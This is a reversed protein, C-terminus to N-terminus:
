ARGPRPPTWPGTPSRATTCRSAAVSDLPMDTTLSMVVSMVMEPGATGIAISNVGHRLEMASTPCFNRWTGNEAGHGLLEYVQALLEKADARLPDAFVIHNLLTAAFRPDGADSRELAGAVRPPPSPDASPADIWRLM